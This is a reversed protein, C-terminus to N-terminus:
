STLAEQILRAVESATVEGKTLVARVGLRAMIDANLHNGFGSLVIVPVNAWRTNERLGALLEIGSMEGPPMGIDLLVLDPVWDSSSQLAAEALREEIVELGAQRLERAFNERMDDEDEVYLVRTM